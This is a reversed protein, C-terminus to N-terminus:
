QVIEYTYYNEIQNFPSYHPRLVGGPFKAKLIKVAEDRSIAAIYFQRSGTAIPLATLEAPTLTKINKIDSNLFFLVPFQDQPLVVYREGTFPFKRIGSAMQTVGENYAVYVATSGAYARFYQTYGQLLSLALLLIIAAQGTARAASNIPFTAYWLELMYNSGIGTLAFILPLAGAAWSSNPSGTVALTPPVLMLVTLMILTRYQLQQMRAICVLLGAIMMLGVFANLLPEGALNHRYNEDGHVNFMLLVKVINAGLSATLTSLGLDKPLNIVNARSAYILYALSALGLGFFIMGGTRAQSWSKLKSDASLRWIGITVVGLVLLWGIPGCLLDISLMISLAVYSGLTPRKLARGSLWLTTATALPLLASVLGNRSLSVAWPSVAITLSAVWAVRRGFWDNLWLWTIVVALIGLAAPWFRLSLLNHGFIHISISQLWVWLPSYGNTSDLKPILDHTTVAAAQLGVRASTEDLGPPLVALDYLRFFAAVSAVLSLGLPAWFRGLWAFPPISPKSGAM